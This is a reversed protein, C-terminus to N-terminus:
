VVNNERIVGTDDCSSLHSIVQLIEYLCVPLVRRVHSQLSFIIMNCTQLGFPLCQHYCLHFVSCVVVDDAM